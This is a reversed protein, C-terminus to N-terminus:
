RKLGATWNLVVTIPKAADGVPEGILFRRGDATVCYQDDVPRVALPTQFLAKPVGTEITAGAKVDVAMLKGDLSLYFLEKGDKRWLAQAGGNSSVQRKGTFGPFTAVYVEWRGSETTNYAIWRGDPSVHPEDKGFESKMLVVPTRNGSLMLPSFAKGEQDIIVISKGDPLWNESYLAEPSDYILTGESARVAKRYLGMRDGRHSTFLLERGDPSWVPDFEDAFTLRSFIGSSLELIWVNTTHSVANPREVALRKEDPSLAIQGYDGPEGISGLHRGDRSYWALQTNNSEPARYALVGTKSVTFLSGPVGTLGVRQAIPFPDGTIRLSRADSPQAMLTERQGFIVLGPPAYFANLESLLLRRTETSDLSALYIGSRARDGSRSSYLFHRGDPLFQPWTQGIEKRSTDLALAVTSEGGAASVRRLGGADSSFLITGDPSWAGGGRPFRVGCVVSPPGGAIDIKKLTGRDFFGIFRSDPSWFPFYAGETEPLPQTALSELSHIWLRPMMSNPYRGSIVLHRGDPSLAAIDDPFQIVKEPPPIQFRVVPAESPRQRFYAVALIAAALSVVALLAWALVERSSRRPPAEHVVQVATGDTVSEVTAVFRYGKRPITEIFQPKETSDDLAQRIKQIAKNLGEDFEM